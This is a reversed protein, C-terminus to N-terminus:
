FSPANPVRGAPWIAISRLRPKRDMPFRGSKEDKGACASGDSASISIKWTWGWWNVSACVVATCCSSSRWIRAPYPREFYGGGRRGGAHQNTRRDDGSAAVESSKADAGAPSHQDRHRGRAVHIQLAITRRGTEAAHEGRHTKARVFAGVVRTDRASRDRGRGSKRQIAFYDLFQGSGLRLQASHARFCQRTKARCSITSRSQLTLCLGLLYEDLKELARRCVEAHARAQRPAHSQPDRTSRPCCISHSTRPNITCRIPARSMLACRDWRPRAPFPRSECRQSNWLTAGPSWDRRSPNWTAKWARFRDPSFIEPRARLQLTPTLLAPANIYTNRHIQGYRLFEAHELGPIM